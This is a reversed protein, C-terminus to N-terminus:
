REENQMPIDRIARFALDPGNEGNNREEVMGAKLLTDTQNFTEVCLRLPRGTSLVPCASFVGAQRWHACMRRAPLPNGSKTTRQSGRGAHRGNRKISITFSDSRDVVRDLRLVRLAPLDADKGGSRGNRPRNTNPRAPAVRRQLRFLRFQYVVLFCPWACSSTKRNFSRSRSLSSLRTWENQSGSAACM